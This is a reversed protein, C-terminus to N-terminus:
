GRGLVRAKESEPITGDHVYGSADEAKKLGLPRFIWYVIESLPHAIMNHIFWNKYLKKM